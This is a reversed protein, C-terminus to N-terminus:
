PSSSRFSRSSRAIVRRSQRLQVTGNAQIGLGIHRVLGKSLAVMVSDVPACLDAAPVGLAAGDM